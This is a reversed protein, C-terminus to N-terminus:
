PEVPVPALLPDCTLSRLGLQGPDDAAADRVGAVVDVELHEILQMCVRVPISEMGTEHGLEVSQLDREIGRDEVLADLLAIERHCQGHPRRRAVKDGEFVGVSQVEHASGREVGVVDKPEDGGVGLHQGPAPQCLRCHRPSGADM